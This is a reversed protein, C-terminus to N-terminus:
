GEGAKGVEQSQMSRWLFRKNARVTSFRKELCIWIIDTRNKNLNQMSVISKILRICKDEKNETSQVACM